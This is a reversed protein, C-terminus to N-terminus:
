PGAVRDRGGQKARYLAADADSLLLAADLTEGAAGAVGISARLNIPLGRHTLTEQRLRAMFKSCLASAQAISHGPLLLLFEDGGWRALASGTPLVDAVRTALRCLAADGADHGHRDNVHKLNDLDVFALALEGGNRRASEILRQLRQAGAHRSLAGTLGDFDARQRAQDREERLSRLRLALGVGLVISEFAVAQLPAYITWASPATWGWSVTTRLMTMLGLPFWALLMLGARPARKWSLWLLAALVAPSVISFIVSALRAVSTQAFEGPLLFLLALTLFIRAGWRLGHDLWLSSRAVRIFERVFLLLLAQSLAIMSGSARGPLSAFWEGGPLVFATGTALLVWLLQAGVFGVYLAYLRERLIVFFIANFLLMVVLTTFGAVIMAGFRRESRQFEASSQVSIEYYVRGHGILRLYIPRAPTHLVGPDLAFAYASPSFRLPDPRFFSESQSRYGGRADPLFAQVARTPMRAIALVQADRESQELIVRVWRARTSPAFM